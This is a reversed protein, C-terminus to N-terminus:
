DHTKGSLRQLLRRAHEADDPKGLIEGDLVVTTDAALVPLVALTRAEVQRWGLAAKARALRTVYADPAEGALPTEDVDAGHKEQTLLEEFAVDLQHLLERRRPSRSALYIRSDAEAMDCVSM